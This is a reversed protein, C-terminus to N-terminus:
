SRPRPRRGIDAVAAFVCACVFVLVLTVVIPGEAVTTIPLAWVQASGDPRDGLLLSIAIWAVLLGTLAPPVGRSGLVLAAAGLALSPVLAHAASPIGAAALAAAGLPLAAVLAADLLAPAARVPGMLRETELQRRHWVSVVLPLIVTSAGLDLWQMGARITPYPVVLPLAAVIIWAASAAAM